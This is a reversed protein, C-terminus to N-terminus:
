TYPYIPWSRHSLLWAATSDIKRDDTDVGKAGAAADDDATDAASFFAPHRERLDQEEVEEAVDRRSSPSWDLGFALVDFQRFVSQVDSPIPPLPGTAGTPNDCKIPALVHHV